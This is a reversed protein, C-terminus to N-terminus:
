TNPSGYKILLRKPCGIDVVVINGLYESASEQLFGRKIGVFTITLTAKVSIGHPQGTDCDLGSPIDISVVKGSRDNITQIVPLYPERVERNLGTGFIADIILSAREFLVDSCPDIPIRMKKAIDANHIADPSTPESIAAIQVLYGHNHLHRAIAYGDGGNNGSGCVVLIKKLSSKDCLEEIVAASGSAANEMLVISQMGFVGIAEKDVERVGERTFSTPSHIEYASM